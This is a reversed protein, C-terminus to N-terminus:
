KADSLDLFQGSMGFRRVLDTDWCWSSSLIRGLFDFQLSCRNVVLSSNTFAFWGGAIDTSFCVAQAPTVVVINALLTIAIIRGRNKTLTSSKMDFERPKTLAVIPQIFSFALLFPVTDSGRAAKRCPNASPPLAANHHPALCASRLKPAAFRSAACSSWARIPPSRRRPRCRFATARAGWRPGQTPLGEIRDGGEQRADARRTTARDWVAREWWSRPRRHRSVAGGHRPNAVRRACGLVEM